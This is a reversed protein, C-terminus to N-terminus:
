AQELAKRVRDVFTPPSVFQLVGSAMDVAVQVTKARAIRQGGVAETVLYNITLRHEWEILSARIRVRDRFRSYRIYKLQLDVVPWGYGSALMEDLGYGIREMLAWRANELYKVYHGHWVIGALDVDHFPVQVEIESCLSGVKRM